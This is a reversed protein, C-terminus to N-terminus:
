LEKTLFITNIDLEYTNCFEVSHKKVADGFGTVDLKKHIFVGTWSKPTRLTYYQYNNILEEHFIYGYHTVGLPQCDHYAIIDFEEFLMNISLARLATYQDVFLFSCKRDNKTLLEEYLDNYYLFVESKDKTSLQNFQTGKTIYSPLCHHRIKARGEFDLVKVLEDIWEKDNEICLIEEISSKLLLPTSFMGCGLELAFKPQFVDIVANIIPQHTSWEYHLVKEM